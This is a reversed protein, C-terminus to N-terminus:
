FRFHILVLYEVINRYNKNDEIYKYPNSSLAIPDRREILDNLYEKISDMNNNIESSIAHSTNQNLLFLFGSILIICLSLYLFNRKKVTTM